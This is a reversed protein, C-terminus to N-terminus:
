KSDNQAKKLIEIADLKKLDNETCNLIEAVTKSENYFYENLLPLIRNKYARELQEKTEVGMLYSHGIQHDRDYQATIRQNIKELLTQLNINNVAKGKLLEPKPMMEEFDFRRRLATDLLAISRDATNMTGIIYVNNPVGFSEKSYPLTVKMQHPNGIRKDEEILTILEGFIKSVDGRNIEDIILIYKPANPNVIYDSNTTSSIQNQEELANKLTILEKYFTHYYGKLAVNGDYEKNFDTSNEYQENATFLQKIKSLDIKRDQLQSGFHYILNDDDKYSLTLLNKCDSGEPYKEKFINFVDEFSIQKVNNNCKLLNSSAKKCLRKFIGDEGIYRVEENDTNGWESIYPKIGEVFEEYSYSQHFTVFEVRNEENKIRNFEPELTNKYFDQKESLELKEYEQYRENDLIEMAKVVTNYTKGTGPPGYLIQNLPQVKNTNKMIVQQGKMKINEGNKITYYLYPSIKILYRKQKLSKYDENWPINENKIQSLDINLNKIDSLSLPKPLSNEEVQVRYYYTTTGIQNSIREPLSIATLERFVGGQARVYSLIKDGKKIEQVLKHGEINDDPAQIFNKNNSYEQGQNVWYYSVNYQQWFDYFNKCDSKYSTLTGEQLGKKNIYNTLKKISSNYSNEDEYMESITTDIFQCVAIIDNWYQKLTKSSLNKDKNLSKRYNQYEREILEIDDM